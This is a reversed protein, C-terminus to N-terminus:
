PDEVMAHGRVVFTGGPGVLGVVPTPATVTVEVVEVGGVTALGAVVDRAYAASLDAAVVERTRAVGDSPSRGAVAAYRAGAAAADVLTNRVHLVLTLQVVAVFLVTLLGGVLM